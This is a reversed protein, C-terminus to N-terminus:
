LVGEARIDTEAAEGRSLEESLQMLKRGHGRAALGEELLHGLVQQETLKGEENAGGQRLKVDHAAVRQADLQRPVLVLLEEKEPTFALSPVGPNVGYDSLATLVAPGM